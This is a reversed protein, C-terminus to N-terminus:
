FFVDIGLALNVQITKRIKQEDHGAKYILSGFRWVYDPFWLMVLLCKLEDNLVLNVGLYSLRPSCEASSPATTSELGVRPM